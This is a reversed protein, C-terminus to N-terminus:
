GRAKLYGKLRFVRSKDWKKYIAAQVQKLRKESSIRVDDSVARTIIVRLDRREKLLSFRGKGAAASRTYARARKSARVRILGM